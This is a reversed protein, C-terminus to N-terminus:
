LKLNLGIRLLSKVFDSLDEDMQIPDDKRDDKAKKVAPLADILGHGYFYNPFEEHGLGGCSTIGGLPEKLQKTMSTKTMIAYVQDYELTPNAALILGILGSVHPSAMSTGSLSRYKGDNFSSVVAEGPATIDPKMKGFDPRSVGPGRSSFRSLQFNKNSSGVGIVLKLDAPSNASGCRPGSNGQSFVPVIGAARWAEVHPKFWTDGQGGGWSNSVVDAGKSCDTAKGDQKTPCMVFQASASLDYISCSWGACGKAAIWRAGHAVGIHYNGLTKGVMTGM